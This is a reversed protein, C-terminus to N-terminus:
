LSKKMDELLKWCNYQMRPLHFPGGWRNGKVTSSITGDRHLYKFWEGNKKDPFHSYAYNHLKKHWQEYKKDGTLYHALLCAYIAENHPWWLKMDHEYQEPPKGEIDVFYLIGDFEKDWGIDLSWDLILCAKELLEKDKRHRSEEMIFWATEIAHGPNVCRGEISDMRKGDAAVTELLAKEDYKMFDRFVEKSCREIIDDYLPNDDAKRMQQSICLLIMAMAHSKTQRTQPYIKPPLLEPNDHYRVILKFLKKADDLRKEDGAAIAYESLAMVGFTEAYLYRRKRLPIGDRTVEYFMRGDIDFCYKKLFDIGHRSADLWEQRKEVNNYLMATLWTFRGLVWVPKDYNLVTGDQDLVNLFGGYKHDITHKMWFPITDNLLGERYIKILEDIRDLNMAM